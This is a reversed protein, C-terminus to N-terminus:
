FYSVVEFDRDAMKDFDKSTFSFEHILRGSVPRDIQQLHVILSKISKGTKDSIAEAKDKYTITVTHVFHTTGPDAVEATTQDIQFVASKPLIKHFKAALFDIVGSTRLAHECELREKDSLKNQKSHILKETSKGVIDATLGAVQYIKKKDGDQIGQLFALALTRNTAADAPTIKPVAPSPPASHNGSNGKCGSINVLLLCGVILCIINKNRM